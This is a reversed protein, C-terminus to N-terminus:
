LVSNRRVISWWCLYMYYEICILITDENWITM